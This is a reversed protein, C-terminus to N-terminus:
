ILWNPLMVHLNQPQFIRLVVDDELLPSHDILRRRTWKRVGSVTSLTTKRQGTLKMDCWEHETETIGKQCSFMFLTEDKGIQIWLWKSRMRNMGWLTNADTKSRKCAKYVYGHVTYYTHPQTNRRKRGSKHSLQLTTTRPGPVGTLCISIYLPLHLLM